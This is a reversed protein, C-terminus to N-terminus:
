FMKGDKMFQGINVHIIGNRQQILDNRTIVYKPYNDRILELPKYERNETDINELITMAVQIYSYQMQQNRLIFDCELKGIRGISIAYGRSKAYVFVINELVPGYNIRNDTNTSFYFGLDVLYYKQEGSISKRSKLDFRECKYLIKADCLIQIYHNLTERTIDSGAKRLDELMNTLSTTAGFNNIIYSKVVNFTSVNRIKVRRKIDKEFIEDIIGNVYSKKDALSDITLTKPFGGEIIYNEFEVITDESVPKKLFSKMGLYEDFTLPYMEFEIYRGTLKTVLEGSLLYSNSGTIFISYEDEERFANIVEEFNEVNQIEDIFLYKIGDTVCLDDITKELQEPTKISKFGRKDLNIYVVNSPSIGADLLEEMITKMLCSKGCRRVGTIVKILETDHYFGRIKNLYIERHYLKM